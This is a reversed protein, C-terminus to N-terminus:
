TGVYYFVTCDWTTAASVTLGLATAVPLPWPANPPFNVVAGGGTAAMPFDLQDNTVTFTASAAAPATTGAFLRLVTATAGENSCAINTVYIRNGAAPAAILTQGTTFAATSTAHVPRGIQGSLAPATGTTTAVPLIQTPNLTAAVSPVFAMSGPTVVVTMGAGTPGTTVRVRFWTISEMSADFIFETNAAGVPLIFTGGVMGSYNAVAAMGGWQVGDDSQEFTVVPSNTWGTGAVTNKFTVTVNGAQSVDVPGVTGTAGAAVTGTTSALLAGISVTPLPYAQSVDRFIGDDGFGPKVRQAKPLRGNGDAVTAAGNLTVLEDSAMRDTASQVTDDAM